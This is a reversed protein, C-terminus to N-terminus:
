NSRTPAAVVQTTKSRDLQALAIDSQLQFESLYSAPIPQADPLSVTRPNKHVGNIRYEYHLHPATSSGSTGVYGIVDGQNVHAGVRTEKAFRSLHGYLSSIGGGHELIIANGYGGKEGALSVRGDGSAKVPTGTPASYDVGQHARTINLIPHLRHPNFNSSIYKFDVPARLFQKRMSKGDPTFYDAIRGDTSQFRVARYVRGENVFEAALIQGDSLYDGDRYKREYIVTFRDDRQIDLAFDIDWGFVDNAMRMIIESSMGAARAANFLSTDITGIATATRVELPTETLHASFGDPERSVSLLETDSVRRTFKQLVGDIHTLTILEGPKLADLATRMGPLNRITALDDLNLRAQRFIRELTDNRGVVLEIIDGIPQTVPESPTVAATDLGQLLVSNPASGIASPPAVSTLSYALFGGVLPLLFGAGFWRLHHRNAALIQFAAHRNSDVGIKAQRV